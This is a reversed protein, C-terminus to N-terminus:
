SARHVIRYVDVSPFDIREAIRWEDTVLGEIEARRDFYSVIWTTTPGLDGTDPEDTLYYGAVPTLWDPRVLIKDGPAARQEIVTAAARWDQEIPGEYWHRVGHLSFGLIVAAAAIAPVRGGATVLAAASMALAPLVVILYRDAYLPKFYSMVLAIVLPATVWSAVLVHRWAEGVHRFARWVVLLVGGFALLLLVGNGGSLSDITEEVFPWSLPPVWGAQGNDHNVAFDLAPAALLLGIAVGAAWRKVASTRGIALLAAYHAMVVLAVFFHAYVALGSVAGYTLWWSWSNSEAARVFLYTVVVSALMSLSYTRVQQSWEVGFANCALLLGAVVGALRSGLLRAGLPVMLACAAAAFVVSPLRAAWEGSSAIALWPKLVLLYLAQSMENERVVELYKSWGLTTFHVDFAEDMWLPRRDLRILGLVLAIVGVVSASVPLLLRDQEPGTLAKV